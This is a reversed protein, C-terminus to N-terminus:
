NNGIIARPWIRKAWQNENTKAGVVGRAFVVIHNRPFPSIATLNFDALLAARRLLPSSEEPREVTHLEFGDTPRCDMQERSLDAIALAFGGVRTLTHQFASDTVNGLLHEAVLHATVESSATDLDPLGSFIMSHAWWMGIAEPADQAEAPPILVGIGARYEEFAM